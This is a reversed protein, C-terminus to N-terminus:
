ENKVPYILANLNKKCGEHAEKYMNYWFTLREIEDAAENGIPNWGTNGMTRLRKVLTEQTM